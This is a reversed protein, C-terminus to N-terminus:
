ASKNSFQFKRDETPNVKCFKTVGLELQVLERLDSLPASAWLRVLERVGTGNCCTVLRRAVLGDAVGVSRCFRRAHIKMEQPADVPPWTIASPHRPWRLFVKGVTRVSQRVFSSASRPHPRVYIRPDGPRPLLYRM